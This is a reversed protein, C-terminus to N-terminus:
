VFAWARNIEECAAEIDNLRRRFARPAYYIREAFVDITRCLNHDIVGDSRFFESTYRQLLAGIYVGSNDDLPFTKSLYLKIIGVKAKGSINPAILIVDPRVSVSVNSILLQSPDNVGRRLQKRDFDFQDSLGLFKGLVEISLNRDQEQFDTSVPKTTLNSLARYIIEDDIAGNELFATMAEFADRYRTVIVESPRKQDKIIRRRRVPTAVLYEGLKNVSIRPQSRELPM